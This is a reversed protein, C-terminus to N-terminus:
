GKQLVAAHSSRVVARRQVALGARGADELEAAFRAADVHGSPEALLLIGGQKMAQAAEQFFAAASPMEHVMAFALVFDVSGALDDVGLSSVSAVRTEIRDRLGARTARRELGAIMRPEVDVAVVRGNPGALRALPLTFFGMGPGPELVTM